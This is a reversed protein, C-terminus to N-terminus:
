VEPIKIEVEHGLNSSEVIGSLIAQNYIIERTPIPAPGGTKCANVYARVKEYFINVKHQIYPIPTETCAGFQDHYLTM